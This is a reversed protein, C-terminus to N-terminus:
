KLNEPNLGQLEPLVFRGDKRVLVDDFWIEGGGYEPTQIYVLDWHNVSVNGNYADDYCAGPTLHFSGGIKEDFLIDYIPAKVNPNVGLAWEGVYRSGEDMDLIQNLRETNVGADAKVIKGNEFVFHINEFVLGQYPSATNYTIEGNISNKVPATYVEGDPINCKGACKVAPIDKISFTLDCTKGKVRVQDTNNMLEVLPDMAKDMKSYDLNCVDFYYDEFRHTPMNALQAMSHNPYRLIVWKTKPVRIEHHVPHSWYKNFLEMKEAPVDALEYSNNNSRISVYADMDNMRAAEYKGIAAMQEKTCQKLLAEQVEGQKITVFPIGGAKYAEEILAVTLPIEMSNVEILIKEGKQLDCSYNILNKALQNIRPDKM